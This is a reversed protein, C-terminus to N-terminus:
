KSWINISRSEIEDLEVITYYGIYRYGLTSRLSLISTKNILKQVNNEMYMNVEGWCEILNKGKRDFEKEYKILTNEFSKDRPINQQKKFSHEKLNNRFKPILTIRLTYTNKDM